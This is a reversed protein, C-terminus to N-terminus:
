HKECYWGEGGGLSIMGSGALEAHALNFEMDNFSMPSKALTAIKNSANSFSLSM